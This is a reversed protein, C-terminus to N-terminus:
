CWCPIKLTEIMEDVSQFRNSRRKELCKLAITELSNPINQEPTRISPPVVAETIVAKLTERHTKRKFPPRLCLMEYLLAGLAYIDSRADLRDVRGAAQEPAMYSPTGTILGVMTVDDSESRDTVVQEAPVDYKEESGIVKAVGWDLVLTEGYEGIMVNSPKIDRHLVGRSHAFAIAMCVSQFINILRTRGFEREVHEDGKRLKRLVDKLTRGQIRKM